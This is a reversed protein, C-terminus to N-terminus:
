KTKLLNIIDLIKNEIIESINEKEFIAKDFAFYTSVSNEEDEYEYKKLDPVKLLVNEDDSIIEILIPVNAKEWIEYTVGFWIDFDESLNYKKNDIYYGYFNPNQEDHKKSVHVKYKINDVIDFLKNMVKPINADFAMKLEENNINHQQFILEIENKSFHIPKTYFWRFDLIECFEKIIINLHDLERKRIEKIIDEWYLIHNNEIMEKPYNCFNQWRSFIQDKHMYGKPLVFYLNNNYSLENQKKLYCLYGRPQNKTLDTYKEVKLEFIFDENHYNLILDGRGIKNNEDKEFCEQIEGFDKETSFDEYKIVQHNLKKEDDRKQNVLDVFMDRFAKYSMLNCFVETLSTENKLVNYFVNRERM